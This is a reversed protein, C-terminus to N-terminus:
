QFVFPNKAIFSHPINSIIQNSQLNLKIDFLNGDCPRHGNALPEIGVHRLVALPHSLSTQHAAWPDIGNPLLDMRGAATGHGIRPHRGHGRQGVLVQQGPLAVDAHRCHYDPPRARGSPDVPIFGAHGGFATLRAVFHRGFIIRWYHGVHNWEM